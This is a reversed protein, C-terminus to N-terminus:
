RGQDTIQIVDHAKQRVKGTFHGVTKGRWDCRRRM